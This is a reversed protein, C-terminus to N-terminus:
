SVSLILPAQPETIELVVNVVFTPSYIVTNDYQFRIDCQLPGLPFDITAGADKYLLLPWRTNPLTPSALTVDLESILDGASNRLESTATWNGSPLTAFGAYSLTAGRKIFVSAKQIQAM